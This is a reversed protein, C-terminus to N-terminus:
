LLVFCRPWMCGGGGAPVTTTTTTTTTVVVCETLEGEPYPADLLPDFDVAGKEDNTEDDDYISSDILECDTTGWWNKEAKMGEPQNNFINWANNFFNNYYIKDTSGGAVYGSTTYGYENETINNGVIENSESKDEVWIGHLNNKITNGTINNYESYYDAVNIGLRNNMVSNGTLENYASNILRIGQYNNMVSVNEISSNDVFAFLIGQYNNTLTLGRVTINKVKSTYDVGVVALYGLDPYVTPDITLDNEGYFYYIKKGDVTNSTDIDHIHHSPSFGLIGFNYENNSMSNNRLISGYSNQLLIGYENNLVTNNILKNYSSSSGYLHIGYTNSYSTINTLRNNSSSDLYIGQHNSNCTVNIFNNYNSSRFYIGYDWDKLVCNKVTHNSNTSLSPDYYIGHTDELDIGDITHGQCDLTINTTTIKMCTEVNSDLIDSTLLYTIGSQNLESCTSISIVPSCTYTCGVTGADNWEDPKDCKNEDGTNGYSNILYFDYESNSCVKNEM